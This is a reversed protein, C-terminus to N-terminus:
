KETNKIIQFIGLLLNSCWRALIYLIGLFGAELMTMLISISILYTPYTIPSTLVKFWGYILQLTILGLIIYYVLMIHKSTAKLGDKIYESKDNINRESNRISIM